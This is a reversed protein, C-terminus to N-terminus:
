KRSKNQAVKKTTPKVPKSATTVKKKRSSTKKAQPRAAKASGLTRTAKPASKRVPPKEAKAKADQPRKAVPKKAPPKTTKPTTAVTPKASKLNTKDTKDKVQAPPEPPTDPKPAKGEPPPCDDKSRTKKGGDKEIVIEIRDTSGAAPALQPINSPLLAKGKSVRMFVPRPPNDALKDAVISFYGKDDTCGHGLERHWRGLRDYAAVNAGEVPEGDPTRVFGDVAWGKGAESRPASAADYAMVIGHIHDRNLEAKKKMEVTRPHDKGYKFELRAHERTYVRDKASELQMSEGLQHTRIEDLAEVGRDFGGAINEVKISEKVKM